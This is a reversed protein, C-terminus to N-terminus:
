IFMFSDHWSNISARSAINIKHAHYVLHADHERHERHESWSWFSWSSCEEFYMKCAYKEYRLLSINVSFRRKLNENRFDIRDKKMDERRVNLDKIRRRRSRKCFEFDSRIMIREQSFQLRKFLFHRTFFFDFLHTFHTRRSQRHSKNKEAASYFRTFVLRSRTRWSRKLAWRFINLIFILICFAIILAVWRCVWNWNRFFLFCNMISRSNRFM